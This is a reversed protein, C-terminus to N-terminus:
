ASRRARFAALAEPTNLNELVTGEPDLAALDSGELWQVELAGLLAHLALDDGALRRRAEELVRECRYLACLPEPGAETRPVVADAEPAAVLALLLDPTVSPLDTALVVVRESRAAALAGVVGRLASRPGEPDAVRRGVAASPPDGGVLLVEEFLEGLRRALVVAAPEGKIEVHAKDAGMRESAGGLLLAASVNALRGEPAKAARGESM